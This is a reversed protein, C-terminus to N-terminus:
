TKTMSLKCKLIHKEKREFNLNISIACMSGAVTDILFGDHFPFPWFFFFVGFLFSHHRPVLYLVLILRLLLDM